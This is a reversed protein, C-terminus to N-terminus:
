GVPSLLWRKRLSVHGTKGAARVASSFWAVALWSLANRRRTGPCPDMEPSRHPSCSRTFWPDSHRLSLQENSVGTSQQAILLYLSTRPLTVHYRGVAEMTDPQRVHASRGQFLDSVCPHPSTDYESSYGGEERDESALVAGLPGDERAPAVRWCLPAQDPETDEPPGAGEAHAM